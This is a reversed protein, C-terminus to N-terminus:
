PIWNRSYWRLYEEVHAQWYEEVHDGKNILWTHPVQYQTLLGEFETASPRYRDTDGIDMYLTPFQDAPILRTWQRLMVNDGWFYALSHAGVEGFDKWDTFGLRVAWAAGRSMGGIARCARGTCTRYHQDLWPLLGQTILKGFISDAPDQLSYEEYPMAILFPASQHSSILRDAAAVAGLRIWQNDDADQGHLLILLPYGGAPVGTAAPSASYCPPLYLEFQLPKSYFAFSAQLSLVQGQTDACPAPTPPVVPSPPPQTRTKEPTPSAESAVSPVAPTVSVPLSTPNRSAAPAGTYTILPVPSNALVGPTAAQCGSLLWAFLLTFLLIHSQKRLVISKRSTFALEANYEVQDPHLATPLAGRKPRPPRRNLDAWGSQTAVAPDERRNNIIM